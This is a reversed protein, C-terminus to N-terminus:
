FASTHANGPHMGLLAAGASHTGFAGGALLRWGGNDHSAAAAHQPEAAMAVSPLSVPKKSSPGEVGKRLQNIEKILTINENMIKVNETRHVAAEKTVKTRLGAVTRELYERQRAYESQTNTDM